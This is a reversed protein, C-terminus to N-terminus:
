DDVDARFEESLLALAGETVVLDDADLRGAELIWYNGDRGLVKVEKREYRYGSKDIYVLARGQHYLLASKPVAVASIPKAANVDLQAKVFLGPRWLDTAVGPAVGATETVEYLYGAAQLAPDVQGAVGVLEAPVGRAAEPPEPRNTPGEFAPPTPPLVTLNLTKPPASMLLKLPIDVRVLTKRFDVVKAILSGAEVIMEPRGALETIEGDAPAVVPVVWTAQKPDIPQELATLADQYLKVTAETTTYQTEAEALAVLAADLESRALSQPASQFRKVRDQQILVVKRAGEQKLRAENLKAQLDLRDQPGVRVELQGLLDGAKVTSALVPWKGGNASRLRGAFAARVETTARPNPVVRGYVAAKPVWEIEKAAETQIGYSEALKKNLKILGAKFKPLPSTNSAAESTREEQMRRHIFYAGALVAAVVALTLTWKILVVAPQLPRM